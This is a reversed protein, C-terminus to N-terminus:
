VQPEQAAREEAGALHCELAAALRALMADLVMIGEPTARLPSRDGPLPKLLGAAVLAALEAGLTREFVNGAVSPHPPLRRAFETASVGYRTRLGMMLLEDLAEVRSLVCSQALDVGGVGHLCQHLM